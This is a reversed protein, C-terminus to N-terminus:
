GRSRNRCSRISRDAAALVAFEDGGIRAVMDEARFSQKLIRAVSRLLEDGTLHGQSDNISKLDDVDIVIISIPSIRSNELRNMEEEFYFRNFLRTLVDHASQYRLKVEIEKRETIDRFIAFSGSFEGASNFRPTATVM